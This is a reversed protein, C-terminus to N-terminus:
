KQTSLREWSGDPRQYIITGDQNFLVQQNKMANQAMQNLKQSITLLSQSSPNLVSPIFKKAAESGQALSVIIGMKKMTKQYEKAQVETLKKGRDLVEKFGKIEHYLAYGEADLADKTFRRAWGMEALEAEVALREDLALGTPERKQLQLVRKWMEDGKKDGYQSRFVKEVTVANKYANEEELRNLIKDWHAHQAEHKFIHWPTDPKILVVKQHPFYYGATGELGLGPDFRVEVEISKLREVEQKFDPHTLTPTSYKRPGTVKPFEVVRYSEVYRGLDGEIVVIDDNLATPVDEHKWRQTTKLEDDLQKIQRELASRVEREATALRQNNTEAAALKETLRENLNQIHREQLEIEKKDQPRDRKLRTLRSTEERVNNRLDYIERELEYKRGHLGPHTGSAIKALEDEASKKRILVREYASGTRETAVVTELKAGHAHAFAKVKKESELIDEASVLKPGNVKIAVREAQMAGKEALSTEISILRLDKAAAKIALLAPLPAGTMIISLICSGNAVQTIEANVTAPSANGCQDKSSLALNGHSLCDRDVQNFIQVMNSTTASSLLIRGASGSLTGAVRETAIAGRLALPIKALLGAFGGAVLTTAMITNDLNEQGKGYKGELRCQLSKGLQPQDKFTQAILDEDQSSKFLTKKFDSSLNWTIKGDPSKKKQATFENRSKRLEFATKWIVSDLKKEVELKIKKPDAWDKKAMGHIFDSVANTQGYWGSVKISNYQSELKALRAENIRLQELAAQYIDQQSKTYAGVPRLQNVQTREQIVDARMRALIRYVKSAALIKRSYDKVLFEKFKKDKTLSEMKQISCDLNQEQKSAILSFFIGETASGINSFDDVVNSHCRNFSKFDEETFKPCPGNLQEYYAKSLTAYTEGLLAHASESFYFISLFTYLGLIQGM